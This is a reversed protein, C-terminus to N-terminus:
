RPRRPPLSCFCQPSPTYAPIGGDDDFDHDNYPSTGLEFAVLEYGATPDNGASDDDDASDDDASAEDSTAQAPCQTAVILVVAEEIGPRADLSELVQVDLSDLHSDIEALIRSEEGVVCDAAERDDVELVARYAVLSYDAHEFERLAGNTPLPVQWRSGAGGWTGAIAPGLWSSTGLAALGGLGGVM